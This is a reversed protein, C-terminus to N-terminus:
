RSNSSLFVGVGSPAKGKRNSNRRKRGHGMKRSLIVRMRRGDEVFAAV